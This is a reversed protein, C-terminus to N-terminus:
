IESKQLYKQSFEMRQSFENEKQEYSVAWLECSKGLVPLLLNVVGYIDRQIILFM